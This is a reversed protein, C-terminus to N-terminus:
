DDFTKIWLYVQHEDVFRWLLEDVANGCDRPGAYLATQGAAVAM